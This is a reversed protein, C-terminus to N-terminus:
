RWFRSWSDALEPKHADRVLGYLRDEVDLRAGGDRRLPQLVVETRRRSPQGIQWDLPITLVIGKDFSGEGFDNFSVDTLTAYAGVKWGNNFERELRFTAGWDGALYRGVDLQAHFDSNFAYYASVHGTIVDYHQAPDIVGAGTVPNIERARNPKFGLGDWSRQLAYNLEAGFALRSNVPKWLLEASVGGFERELYGGTVRGYLNRGPRFFYAATLREVVPGRSKDYFNGDSRVHPLISDSFRTSEDLNGLVPQRLLGSFYVGSAPNWELELELGVDGRLPATPDFLSIDLYPRLAWTFRRSDAPKAGVPLGNAADAFQTQVLMADAANPSFELTELTSRSLTVRSLPLGQDTMVIDFTEISAPLAAALLRATRGIAQSVSGYRKNEVYVTAQSPQLDIGQLTLGIQTFPGALGDAFRQSLTQTNAAWGLDQLSRRPRVSIPVPAGDRSGVNPQTTPDTVFSLMMGFETGQRSYLSITGSRSFRYDVGFNMPTKPTFHGLGQELLYADSAYEASFSLRDTAQWDLSAFPAVDGRFWRSTELQGGTGSFTTPRTGLSAIPNYSGLRGWGLGVTTTLNGFRKSAVIYEASYLGTGIFDQLGIVIAPRIETETLLQYRLDFSRDYTEQGPGTFDDIRAYRFAGQLRPTIQFALTSRVTDASMAIGFTLEADPRMLASPMDGSGPLGYSNLTQSAAPSFVTLFNVLGVAIVYKTRQFKSM